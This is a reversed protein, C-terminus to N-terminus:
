TNKLVRFACVFIVASAATVMLFNGPSGYLTELIGSDELIVVALNASVHAMIPAYITQFCEMLWAFLLGMFFAYIGQVVNGHFIGFLLASWFIAASPRMMERFREYLLGRMILEEAIPGCLGVTLMRIWISGAYLAASSEQYSEAFEGLPLMGAVNNGLIAASIGALAVWFFQGETIGLGESPSWQRMWQRRLTDRYYLWGFLPIALVAGILVIWITSEMYEGPIDAWGNRMSKMFLLSSFIMAVGGQILHYVLMPYVARWLNGITIRSRDRM